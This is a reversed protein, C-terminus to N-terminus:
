KNNVKIYTLNLKMRNKYRKPGCINARNAAIARNVAIIRLGDDLVSALNIRKQIYASIDCIYAKRTTDYKQELYNTYSFDKLQMMNGKSDVTCLYISSPPAYTKYSGEITDVPIILEARNVFINGKSSWSNLYPFKLKLHLGSMSQLFVISDTSQSKSNTLQEKLVPNADSFNYHSFQEFNNSAYNVYLDLSKASTDHYFLTLKSISSYMNFNYIAGGQEVPDTTIYLGKLYNAFNAPSALATSDAALLYNGFTDAQDLKIRIHAGLTDSGQIVKQHIKGKFSFSGLLEKTPLSSNALYTKIATGQITDNLSFVHITQTATTDGYYYTNYAMTLVLSDFTFPKKGINSLAYNLSFQTYISASTKGFVPDAYSGLLHSVLNATRVSDELETFVFITSTDLQQYPIKDKAIQNLGFEEPEKKCSFILIYIFFIIIFFYISRYVSHIIKM